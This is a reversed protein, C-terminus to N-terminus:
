HLLFFISHLHSYGYEQEDRQDCDSTVHPQVTVHLAFILNNKPRYCFLWLHRLITYFLFSTGCILQVVTHHGAPFVLIWCRNRSCATDKGASLRSIKRNCNWLLTLRGKVLFILNKQTQLLLTMTMWHWPLPFHLSFQGLRHLPVHVPNVSAILCHSCSKRQPLWISLFM